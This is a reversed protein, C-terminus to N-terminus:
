VQEEKDAEISLATDWKERDAVEEYRKYDEDTWSATDVMLLKGYGFKGCGAVWLVNKGTTEAM